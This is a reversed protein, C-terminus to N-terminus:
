ICCLGSEVHCMTNLFQVFVCVCVYLEYVLYMYLSVCTMRRLMPCSFLTAIFAIHATCACIPARRLELYQGWKVIMKVCLYVNYLYYNNLSDDVGDNWVCLEALDQFSRCIYLGPSCM